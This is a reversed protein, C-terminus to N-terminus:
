AQSNSAFLMLAAPSSYSRNLNLAPSIQNESVRIRIEDDDQPPNRRNLRSSMLLGVIM